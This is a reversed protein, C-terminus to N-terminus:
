QRRSALFALTLRYVILFISIALLLVGVPRLLFSLVFGGALLWGVGGLDAQWFSKKEVPRGCHPCAAAKKSVEKSCDPCNILSRPSEKAPNTQQKLPSGCGECISRYRSRAGNYM